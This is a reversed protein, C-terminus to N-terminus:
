CHLWLICNQKTTVRYSHNVAIIFGYLTVTTCHYHVTPITTITLLLLVVSIIESLMTENSIKSVETRFTKFPFIVGDILAAHSQVSPARSPRVYVSAHARHQHVFM